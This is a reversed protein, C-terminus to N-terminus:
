TPLNNKWKWSPIKKLRWSIRQELKPLAWFILCYVWGLAKGLLYVGWFVVWMAPQFIVMFWLPFGLQQIIFLNGFRYFITPRFPSFRRLIKGVSGQLMGWVGLWCNIFSNRENRAKPIGPTHELPINPNEEFGVNKLHNVLPSGPDVSWGVWCGQHRTLRCGRVYM